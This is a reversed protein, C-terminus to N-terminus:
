WQRDNDIVPKGIVHCLQLTRSPRYILGQGFGTTSLTFFMNEMSFLRWQKEEQLPTFTYLPM